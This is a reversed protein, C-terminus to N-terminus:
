QVTLNLSLSQRSSGASASLTLTYQGAPTGNANAPTSTQMNTGGGCSCIFALSLVIVGKIWKTREKKRQVGPLVFLGFMAAAWLWPLHQSPLAASTRATTTVTITLTTASTASLNISSPVSCSAGAPAGACTITATGSFGGGGVVLNYSATGGAAVTASTSGGPATALGLDSGIGSISVTQPSGASNDTFVVAATQPGSAAPTFVVSVACNAGPALTNGCSNTQQFSPAGAGTLNVGSIVLSATGANQVGIIQANSPEGVSQNAFNIALSSFSVVPALASIAFVSASSTGGGPAPNNITVSATGSTAFDTASVLATLVSNTVYTTQLATGNWKVVSAETFGQGNLTLQLASSNQPTSSPALSALQPVPNSTVPAALSSTLLYVVQSGITTAQTLFAFGNSGWRTLNEAYPWAEQPFALAGTLSLSSQGYASIIMSSSDGGYPEQGIVFIHGSATDMVVNYLNPYSTDNYTTVPFSGVQAQTTPNWVEGASTYLLTGDSVVEAGTTNNVAYNGGQNPTFQLGQATITLVNFFSNQANSFPLAYITSSGGAYAFSSFDVTAISTTPVYNVLGSGNYLAMVGFGYDPIDLALVVEQPSGPVGKLDAAAFGGCCNTNTPPFPFTKDVAQTSLNIRQVTQDQNTVVFLYSGDSSAALLGPNNGVPIPTGLAGTAPNIPIVTNPNTASSSPVSAYLLPSGPVSTLFSADVNIVEYLTLPVSISTGGGPTPNTVSVSVEGITSAVSSTLTAQLQEGSSYTTSQSIGNVAIVSAPYFNAGTVQVTITGNNIQATPSGLSTIVPLAYVTDGIGVLSVGAQPYVPDNSNITLTGTRIGAATPSFTITILCLSNPALSAICSNGSISFDGNVTASTISLAANGINSFLLQNATGVTNVLLHGFNFSGSSPSLQPAVGQGSFQIVQPSIVTNDNLTLTGAVASSKQPTFTLSIPCVSGPEITGCSQQVTVTAVSSVLSVISLPANGCNTVHVVQTNSQKAPVSGFAVNWSDPCVSAAATAMDFKAVFGHGAQTPPAPQFSGPTTPFDTTLTLGTVILNNPDNVTLAAFQSAPFVQDASSLFSGFLLSSLNPSMEALVMDSVAEGYVWQSVFPNLLPFDTSGTMGGVFVNSNSDLAIGAFSTGENGTAPTGELYTAALIATGAGNLETVFGSNCTCNPGSKLTKQYANSSVPLNDESTGGTVYSNGQTNIALGGITDTGPVYTAYTIESATSNLQLVFGASANEVSLNNPFTQQIVGATSPLGPGATGAITVQGNTNVAIGAPVFVNNLNVTINEPAIGPVITSYVFTGAPDVKLVFTSNYPYGPVTNALTGPTIKFNADDTVGALYANGAADVALSGAGAGGGAQADTGEIGGILGVYNFASGNPKLSAVFFCDNNGECTLAPISGVHPFDNSSSTGAVIINGNSDTAIANGYNRSSGGLYTSYLLTHGTPDLKSVFADPSGSATTEIGNEIPFDISNTYGTVYVNGASDSAVAMPNDLSSGALYTSFVFVPDIVLERHQDFEGVQFQVSGDPNLVFASEVIEREGSSEQYATPKQFILIGSGLSIELDGNPDLAIGNAGEISFRIQDPHAGAAIRFDHELEDGRGHFLLDIGPYLEPYVVQSQNPVGRIWRRPDAGVLYNSVSPLSGRGEPVVDTKSALFNFVIRTSRESGAPFIMEVGSTSFLTETGSHRSVFQYRSPAQGINKEFTIPVSMIRPDVSAGRSDVPFLVLVPLVFMLFSNYGNRM